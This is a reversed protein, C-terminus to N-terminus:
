SRLELITKIEEHDKPAYADQYDDLNVKKTIIRELFNSWKRKIKQLDRVGKVFYTKNANVSGFQVRNGLVLNTYIKGADETQQEQKYVGLYSVVGNVSTLNQAELAVSTNGTLEFVIDYKNELENLQTVQTDIYSAGTQEALRAKLSEKPSRAVTDVEAGSLRLLATALLGVPGAGLVLVRKSSWKRMRSKQILFTESVAKEVITLPELLVGVEKLSEPLKVAFDSDSIAFERAFGHLGKIGHELYHGTICMDSQGSKCYVCNEPCNRRVTPVVLDGKKFGRVGSGLGAVRSLSEHGLVLFDEGAPAEGYFGSIIDRDTGCIGVKQVELLLEKRQPKPLELEQLKLSDQKLPAVTIAKM